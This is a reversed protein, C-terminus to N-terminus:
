HCVVVSWRLLSPCPQELTSCSIYYPASYRADIYEQQGASPHPLAILHLARPLYASRSSRVSWLSFHHSPLFYENLRHSQHLWLGKGRESCSRTRRRLSSRSAMFIKRSFIIRKLHKLILITPLRISHLQQTKATKHFTRPGLTSVEASPISLDLDPSLSRGACRLTDAVVNAHVPCM